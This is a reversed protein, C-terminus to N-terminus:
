EDDKGEASITARPTLEEVLAYIASESQGLGQLLAAFLLETQPTGQAFLARLLVLAVDAQTAPTADFGMEKYTPLANRPEWLM